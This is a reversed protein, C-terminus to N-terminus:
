SDTSKFPLQVQPLLQRQKRLQIKQKYLENVAEHKTPPMNAIQQDLSENRRNLSATFLSKLSQNAVTLPDKYDAHSTTLLASIANRQEDDDALSLPDSDASWEGERVEALFRDLIKGENTSKNIWESDIIESLPEALQSNHLALFLLVSEAKTLQQEAPARPTDGETGTTPPMTSHRGFDVFDREVSNRDAGTLRAIQSLYDQQVTHFEIKRIWLFLTQLAEMRQSPSLQADAPFLMRHAFEMPALANKELMALGESGHQRFWDDPDQKDALPLFTLDLGAELATPLMKLAAKQGSPDGDLLVNLKRTYRTLLRLQPATVASGQPAVACNLGAETCRIADLQGEVMLAPQSDTTNKLHKRARDLNFLVDSKHFIPTEPSNIYKGRMTITEEYFPLQRATFAVVRGQVDRIPVMLRGRFFPRLRSPDTQEHQGHFLGCQRLADPSFNRRRLNDLLKGGSPPSFGIKFADATAMQFGRDNIWYDRVKAADPHETKFCSHFFDTAIEHIELLEKRISQSRAEKGSTAEYELTIGFRRALTEVAEAFNLNEKMQIFRFMDGGQGTSYCYFVGKEDNVYFSPTKENSFPSLGLWEAGRRKLNTYPEVVERLSARTRVEQISRDTISPM